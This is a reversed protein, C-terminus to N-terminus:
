FRHIYLKQMGRLQVIGIVGFAVCAVLIMTACLTFMKQRLGRKIEYNSEEQIERLANEKRKM